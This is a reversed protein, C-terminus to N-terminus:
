ARYEKDEQSPTPRPHRAARASGIGEGATQYACPTGEVRHERCSVSHSLLFGGTGCRLPSRKPQLSPEEDWEPYRPGPPVKNGRLITRVIRNRPFFIIEASKPADSQRETKV